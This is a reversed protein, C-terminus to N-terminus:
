EVCFYQQKEVAREFGLTAAQELDYCGSAKDHLLFQALGRNFYAEAYNEDLHIAKTYDHVAQVSYGYLLYLNGRNKYVEPNSLDSEIVRNLDELAGSFDGTMKRTLGRNLYAELYDGGRMAIIEDYERIAADKQGNAKLLLARDFRAKTLDNQLSIARDFYVKAQDAHGIEQEIRGLNYWAIAFEPQLVVAQSIATIAEDYRKEHALIMGKLDYAVASKPHIKLTGELIQLATTFNGDEVEGIVSELLSMEETNIRENMYQADVTEHYYNVKKAMTLGQIADSPRNALVNLVAYQGNYGYLDAAYPNLSYAKKVDQAAETKMGMKRKFIARRLLADASNPNQAVANELSFYAGEFDFSQEYIEAERLFRLNDRSYSKNTYNWDIWPSGMPANQAFSYSPLLFLIILLNLLQKKM